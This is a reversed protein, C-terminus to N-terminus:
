KAPETGDQQRPATPAIRNQPAGAGRLPTVSGDARRVGDITLLIGDLAAVEDRRGRLWINDATM